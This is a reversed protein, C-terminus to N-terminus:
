IPGTKWKKANGIMCKWTCTGHATFAREYDAPEHPELCFVEIRAGGAPKHMVIRARVVKTNNFVVLGESPLLSGIEGFKRRSIEGDRFLLLKADERRTPPFKAIREDPLPYDYDSINM